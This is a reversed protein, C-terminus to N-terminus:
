RDQAGVRWPDHNAVCTLFFKKRKREKLERKSVASIYINVFIKIKDLKKSFLTMRELPMTIIM